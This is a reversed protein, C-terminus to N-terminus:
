QDIVETTDEIPLSLRAIALLESMPRARPLRRSMLGRRLAPQVRSFDEVYSWGALEAGIGAPYVIPIMAASAPIDAIDVSCWLIIHARECIRPYQTESVTRGLADFESSRWSKVEAALGPAVLYIDCGNDTKAFVPYPDLGVEDLMHLAGIEGLKGVFCDTLAHRYNVYGYKKVALQALAFAQQAKDTPLVINM